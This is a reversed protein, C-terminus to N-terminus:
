TAPSCSCKKGINTFSRRQRTSVQRSACCDPGVAASTPKTSRERCSKRSFVRPIGLQLKGVRRCTSPISHKTSRISLWQFEGRLAQRGSPDTFTVDIMAGVEDALDYSSLIGDFLSNSHELSLSMRPRRAM